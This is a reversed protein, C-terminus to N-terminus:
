RGSQLIQRSFFRGHSFPIFECDGKDLQVIRLHRFFLGGTIILM